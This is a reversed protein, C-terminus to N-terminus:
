IMIYGFLYYSEDGYLRIEYQGELTSPLVVTSTSSSVFTSYVVMGGQRLELTYDDHSSLFTLEFGDLDVSPITVPGKGQGPNDGYPDEYEDGITFDVPAAYLCSGGLTLVTAFLLTRKKLLLFSKKM